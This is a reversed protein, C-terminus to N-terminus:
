STDPDETSTRATTVFDSASDHSSCNPLGSHPLDRKGLHLVIERPKQALGSLPFDDNRPVAFRHANQDTEFRVVVPEVVADVGIWTKQIPDFPCTLAYALSSADPELILSLVSPRRARWAGEHRGEEKDGSAGQDIGVPAHEDRLPRLALRHGPEPFEGPPFHLLPLSGLIRDNSLEVFLEADSYGFRTECGQREGAVIISFKM